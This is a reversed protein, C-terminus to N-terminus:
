VMRNSLTHKALIRNAEQVIEPDKQAGWIRDRAEAAAKELSVLPYPYDVGLRFGLSIQEMPTLEWPTHILTNPLPNLEPVWKRIFIGEPDHDQSQKLPNYIRITNIGTVGAQMQLQPYHIGPEFDLFMRALFNAGSKWDQSLHHTLFSVVMARM